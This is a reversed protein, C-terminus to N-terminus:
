IFFALNQNGNPVIIKVMEGVTPTIKYPKIAHVEGNYQINWKGNNQNSIVIGDYIMTSYTKCHDHIMKSIGKILQEIAKSNSDM